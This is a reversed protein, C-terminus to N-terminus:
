SAIYTVLVDKILCIKLQEKLSTKVCLCRLDAMFVYMSSYVKTHLCLGNCLNPTKINGHLIVIVIKVESNGFQCIISMM